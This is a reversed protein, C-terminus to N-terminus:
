KNEHDDQQLEKKLLRGQEDTTLSYRRGDIRTECSFALRQRRSNEVQGGRALKKFADRVAAPLQTLSQDETDNYGKLEVRVVVGQLNVRVQYELGEHSVTAEYQQRGDEEVRGLEVIRGGAAEKQLAAKVPAPVEVAVTNASKEDQAVVSGIAAALFLALGLGSLPNIRMTIVRSIKRQGRLRFEV